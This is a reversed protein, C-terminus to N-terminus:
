NHKTLARRLRQPRGAAETKPSGVVVAAPVDTTSGPCVLAADGDRPLEHRGLVELTYRRRWSNDEDM